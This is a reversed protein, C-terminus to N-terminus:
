APPPPSEAYKKLASNFVTKMETEDLPPKYTQNMGVVLNWAAQQDGRTSNLASLSYASLANNRGGEGVSMVETVDLPAKGGTGSLVNNGQNKRYIVELVRPPVEPLKNIIEKTLVQNWVYPKLDGNEQAVTSPPILVYGGRSRIDIALEQNATNGTGEVYRFYIHKGGRPTLVFLPSVLEIELHLVREKYSDNDIVLVGSIDGCVLAMNDGEKFFKPIDVIEMRKEQFQRWEGTPIKKGAQIPIVSFGLNLYQEAQEFINM